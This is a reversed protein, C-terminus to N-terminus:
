NRRVKWKRADALAPWGCAIHFGFEASLMYGVILVGADIRYPPLSGLEGQWQRVVRGSHLETGVVCLPTSADGEVGGNAFGPGPYFETDVAWIEEFPLQRWDSYITM